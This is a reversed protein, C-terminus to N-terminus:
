PLTLHLPIFFEFQIEAVAKCRSPRGQGVGSAGKRQPTLVSPDSVIDDERIRLPGILM